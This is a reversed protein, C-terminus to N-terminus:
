IHILSLNEPVAPEGRFEAGVSNMQTSTEEFSAVEFGIHDITRGQTIGPRGDTYESALLWVGDFVVGDVVGKLSAREGGFVQAYWNLAESPDVSNLQIHHFGFLDEDQVLEIKTGWPDTIFATKYLGPIERVLSGDDFRVLRVGSGRVGVSELEAMKADLNPVSFGIRDVGTGQSGGVTRGLFFEIEANGCTVTDDRGAIVECDM